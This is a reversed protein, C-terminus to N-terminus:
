LGFESIFGIINDFHLTHPMRMAFFLNPEKSPLYRMPAEEQPFPRTAPLVM